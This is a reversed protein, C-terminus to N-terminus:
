RLSPYDIDGTEYFHLSPYDNCYGMGIMYEKHKTCKGRYDAVPHDCESCSDEIGQHDKCRGAKLEPQTCKLDGMLEAVWIECDAM